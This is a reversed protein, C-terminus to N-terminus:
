KLIPDCYLKIYMGIIQGVRGQLAKGTIGALHAGLSHGVITTRNLNLLQNKALVSIMNGLVRGLEIIQYRAMVYEKKSVSSWDVVFLNVDKVDLYADKVVHCMPSTNDNTWGHIVFVTDKLSSFDTGKMDEMNTINVQLGQIQRSYFFMKIDKDTLQSLKDFRFPIRTDEEFQSYYM